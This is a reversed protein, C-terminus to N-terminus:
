SEGLASAPPRLKERFATSHVGLTGALTGWLLFNLRGCSFAVTGKGIQERFGCVMVEDSRPALDGVCLSLPAPSQRKVTSCWLVQPCMKIFRPMYATPHPRSLRVGSALVEGDPSTGGASGPYSARITLHVFQVRERSTRQRRPEERSSCALCGLRDRLKGPHKKPITCCFESGPASTELGM